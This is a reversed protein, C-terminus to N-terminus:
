VPLDSLKELIRDRHTGAWYIRGCHPCRRFDNQTRFVYPPVEDRIHEKEVEEIPINCELCRSLVREPMVPEETFRLVEAIQDHLKESQIFLCQKLRNRKALGRDRTLAVRNDSNCRSVLTDDDIANDYCTDYGLIRLWRALTGLMVDAFFKPRNLGKSKWSDSFSDQM